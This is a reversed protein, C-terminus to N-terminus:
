FPTTRGADRAKKRIKDHIIALEETVREIAKMVLPAVANEGIKLTDGAPEGGGGPV